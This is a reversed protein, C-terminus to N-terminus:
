GGEGNSLSMVGAIRVDGGTNDIKSVENMEILMCVFKKWELFCNEFEVRSRKWKQKRYLLSRLLTM